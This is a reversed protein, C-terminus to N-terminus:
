RAGEVRVVSEMETETEREARKKVTKLNGRGLEDRDRFARRHDHPNAGKENEMLLSWAWTALGWSDERLAQAGHTTEAAGKPKPVPREEVQDGRWAAM